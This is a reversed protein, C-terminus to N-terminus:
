NFIQHYQEKTGGSYQNAYGNHLLWDNLSSGTEINIPIIFSRGKYDINVTMTVHNNIYINALFRGYKDSDIIDIMVIKNLIIARVINTIIYADMKEHEISEPTRGVKRPKMEPTDIGSLRINIKTPVGRYIITCHVTDGDYVYVCKALYQGKIGDILSPTEISTNNLIGISERDSDNINIREEKCCKLGM